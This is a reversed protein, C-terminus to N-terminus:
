RQNQPLKGSLNNKLSEILQHIFPKERQQLQRIQEIIQQLKEAIPHVSYRIFSNRIVVAMKEIQRSEELLEPDGLYQHEMLYEIRMRMLKKHDSLVHLARIVSYHNTTKRMFGIIEEYIGFGYVREVYPDGLSQFRKSTDFGNAYDELMMIIWNIDFPYDVDEKAKLLQIGNFDNTFDYESHFAVKLQEYPIETDYYRGEFLFDAIHFCSKSDDYGFVFMDHTFHSKNYLPYESIYFTDVCMYIYYDDDIANKLFTVVDIGNKEIVDKRIKQTDALPYIVRPIPEYFGVYFAEKNYESHFQIHNMFLWHHFSKHESLMSVLNAHRPYSTFVPTTRPL